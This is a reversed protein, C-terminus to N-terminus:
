FQANRFSTYQPEWGTMQRLKASGMQQDLAPGEAWDGYKIQVHSLSRVVYSADHDQRRAIGRTIKAM